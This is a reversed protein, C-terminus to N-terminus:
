FGLQKKVIAVTVGIAVAGAAGWIWAGAKKLHEWASLGDGKSAAAEAEAVEAIARLHDGTAASPTIAARLQALEAALLNLDVQKEIQLWAQNGGASGIADGEVRGAAVGQVSASDGIVGGEGTNVNKGFINNVVGGAEVIFTQPHVVERRAEETWYGAIFDSPHLVESQHELCLRIIWRCLRM